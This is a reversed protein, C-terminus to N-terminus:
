PCASTKTNRSNVKPINAMLSCNPCGLVLRNARSPRREKQSRRKRRKREKAQSGFFILVTVFEVPPSVTAQVFHYSGGAGGEGPENEEESQEVGADGNDNDKNHGGNSFGAATHKRTEEASANDEANAQVATPAM